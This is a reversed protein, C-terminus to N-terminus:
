KSATITFNEQEHEPENYFYNNTIRIDSSTGDTFILYSSIFKISNDHTSFIQTYNNNHNDLNFIEEPEHTNIGYVISKVTNNIYAEVTIFGLFDTISLRNKRTIFNSHLIATNKTTM